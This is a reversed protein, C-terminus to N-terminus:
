WKHSVGAGNLHGAIQNVLPVCDQTPSVAKTPKEMEKLSRSSDCRVPWTRWRRYGFGGFLLVLVVLVILLTM